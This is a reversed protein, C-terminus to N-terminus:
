HAVSECTIQAEELDQDMTDFATTADDAALNPDTRKATRTMILDLMRRRGSASFSNCGVVLSVMRAKLTAATKGKRLNNRATAINVVLLEFATQISSDYYPIFPRPAVSPAPKRKRCLRSSPLFTM